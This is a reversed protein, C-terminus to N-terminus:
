PLCIGSKKKLWDLQVKLRGIQSFLLEPSEHESVQAGAKPGRKKCNFLTKAQQQIESKWQRVQIPHVEHEQAIQNITQLGSLAQLGVKAKFEASHVKRKKTETM